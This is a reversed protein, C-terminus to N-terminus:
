AGASPSPPTAVHKGTKCAEALQKIARELRAFSKLGRRRVQDLDLLKTLEIQDLTEKYGNPMTKRLAEKAGRPEKELDGAWEPPDLQVGPRGDSLRKGALSKIGALFWTEFERCAFAIGLSYTKGAGTEKAREVLAQAAKAACFPGGEWFKADGDLVVLVGGVEHRKLASRLHRLWNKQHEQKGSIREVGGIRFPNEDLQVSDWLVYQSLLRKVILPVARIDGDGEVFLVLRKM